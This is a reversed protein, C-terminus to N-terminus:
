KWGKLPECYECPSHGENLAPYPSAFFLRDAPAIDLVKPCGARHLVHAAGDAVFGKALPTERGEDDVPNVEPRRVEPSEEFEVSRGSCGAAVLGALLFVFIGQVTGM